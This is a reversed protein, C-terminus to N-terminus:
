LFIYRYSINKGLEQKEVVNWMTAGIVIHTQSVHGDMRSIELRHIVSQGLQISLWLTSSPLINYPARKYNESNAAQMRYEKGIETNEELFSKLIKMKLQIKALKTQYIIVM